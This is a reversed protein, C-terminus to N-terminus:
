MEEVLDGRRGVGESALPGELSKTEEQSRYGEARAKMEDAVADLIVSPTSLIHAAYFLLKYTIHNGKRQMSNDQSANQESTASFLGNLDSLVLVAM